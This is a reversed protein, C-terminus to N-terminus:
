GGYYTILADGLAPLCPTIDYWQAGTGVSWLHFGKVYPDEELQYTYQLADRIISECPPMLTGGGIGMETIYVPLDAAAPLVLKLREYLIRHRFAIWVDSESALRTDELSWGHLAIGHTRGPQCPHDVAYQYAPLLDNFIQMDPNGGPFSFLLLCRGQENAIKMAEIAFDSIWTLSAPCENMFEYYDADVQDWYSELGAMWRQATKVPDPASLVDAPCDAMGDATLISRYVIVTQPSIQKIQTLLQEAGNLGKVTGVPHGSNAMRQVYAIVDANSTGNLVHLGALTTNPTTGALVGCEWLSALQAIETGNQVLPLWGQPTNVWRTGASDTTIQSVTLHEREAATGTVAAAVDAAQYLSVQAAAVTVQCPRVSVSEPLATHLPEPTYQPGVIPGFTVGPPAPQPTPQPTIQTQPSQVDNVLTIDATTPAATPAQSPEVLPTPTVYVRVPDPSGGCAALALAAAATILVLNLTPKLHTKMGWLRYRRAPSDFFASPAIGAVSRRVAHRHVRANVALGDFDPDNKYPCNM